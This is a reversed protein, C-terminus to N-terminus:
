RTVARRAPNAAPVISTVAPVPAVASKRSAMAGNLSVTTTVADRVASACADTMSDWETNVASSM